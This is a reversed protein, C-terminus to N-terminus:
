MITTKVSHVNRLWVIDCIDKRWLVTLTKSGSTMSRDAYGSRCNDHFRDVKAKM